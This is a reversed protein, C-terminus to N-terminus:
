PESDRPKRRDIKRRVSDGIGPYLEELSAVLSDAYLEIEEGSFDPRSLLAHMEAHNARLRAMRGVELSM